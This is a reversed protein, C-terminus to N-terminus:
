KKRNFHGRPVIMSIGISYVAIIIMFIVTSSNYALFATTITAIIFGLLLIIKRGIKDSLRGFFGQLLASGLNQISTIFSMEIPSAGIGVAVLNAYNFYFQQGSTNAAAVLMTKIKEKKSTNKEQLQEDTTEM